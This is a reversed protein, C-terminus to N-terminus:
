FVFVFGCGGLGRVEKIAKPAAAETVVYAAPDSCTQLRELRLM